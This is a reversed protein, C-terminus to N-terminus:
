RRDSGPSRAHRLSGGARVRRRNVLVRLTPAREQTLFVGGFYNAHPLRVLGEDPDADELEQALPSDQLMELQRARGAYDADISLWDDDGYPWSM